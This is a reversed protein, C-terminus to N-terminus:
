RRLEYIELLVHLGVPSKSSEIQQVSIIIRHAATGACSAYITPCELTIRFTSKSFFTSKRHFLILLIHLYFAFPTEQCDETYELFPKVRVVATPYLLTFESPRSFESPSRTQKMNQNNSYFFLNVLCVTFIRILRSMLLWRM